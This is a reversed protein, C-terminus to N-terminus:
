LNKVKVLYKDVIIMYIVGVFLGIMVILVSFLYEEIFDDFLLGLIGVLVM